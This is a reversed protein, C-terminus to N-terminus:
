SVSNLFYSTMSFLMKVVGQSVFESYISSLSGREYIILRFENFYSAIKRKTIRIEKQITRQQKRQSSTIKQNFSKTLLRGFVKQNSDTRKLTMKKKKKISRNSLLKPINKSRFKKKNSTQKLQNNSKKTQVELIM